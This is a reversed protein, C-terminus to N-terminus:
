KVSFSVNNSNMVNGNTGEYLFYAQYDGKENVFLDQGVYLISDIKKEFVNYLVLTKSLSDFPLADNLLFSIKEGKLFNNKNLKLNILNNNIQNKILFSVYESLYNQNYKNKFYFDIVSINPILILSFKDNIISSVSNNSFYSVESLNNKNDLFLDYNSYVPWIDINNISLKKNKVEKEIYFSEDYFLSFM